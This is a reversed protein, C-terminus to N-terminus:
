FIVFKSNDQVSTPDKTGSTDHFSHVELSSHHSVHHINVSTFWQSLRLSNYLCMTKTTLHIQSLIAHQYNIEKMGDTVRM